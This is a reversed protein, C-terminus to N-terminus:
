DDPMLKSLISKVETNTDLNIQQAIVVEPTRGYVEPRRNEMQFKRDPFGDRSPDMAKSVSIAEIKDLYAREVREFAEKFTPDRKVLQDIAPGTVGVKSAALSLNWEESLSELIIKRKKPTLKAPQKRPAGVNLPIIYKDDSM